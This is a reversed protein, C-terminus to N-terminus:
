RIASLFAILDQGRTIASINPASYTLHESVQSGAAFIHHNPFDTSLKKFYTNLTDGEMPLVVSTFLYNCPRLSLTIKLDEYPLSQGLYIVNFGRVSIAYHYFLLGIEHLDNEPLFLLFTSREPNHPQKIRELEVILRNRIINSVFHEQAPSIAGTLWLIGIREMFPYVLHLMVKEMGELEVSLNIRQRFADEDLSVMYAILENIVSEADTCCLERVTNCIDQERMDAIRSIKYGHKSLISINLIKRLDDDSYTRLNTETRDPAFLDFRREWARITHAKIGSMKELDSISYLAV